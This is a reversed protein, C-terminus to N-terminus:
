FMPRPGGGAPRTANGAAATGTVVAAGERLAEAAPSGPRVLLETAVGDSIGLRVNWAVPRGQGDLTHVRGRAAARGAGASAASPVGDTPASAAAAPEVGPIRMRLAANPVKLVSERTDTVIRVNATMGPLVTGGPNAFGVVVTYTVVNQAAVAAKRIQNVRGEFSRGPFADITFTVPQQLRIRAIDAEDISADVQMDQLNRAIIFLEPAQLSAAVTQGVDVSRKIVVGDVPSRIETRELDVRAQALAAERQRVVAQAAVAQARAVDAQALSVKLSEALSAATNRANDHEAQSIFNQALLDQKRQADRQANDAELRAKSVGAMVAAVNAQANLVAARASELDAHAQRVKYEFSEPDLRAILQGQKVETNFDARLEKIQGSVQSGVSVQTVPNVTGSSAVAAVLPGREIKATRYSAPAESGRQWWWGALGVGGLVLAGALWWRTRTM